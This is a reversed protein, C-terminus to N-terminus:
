CYGHSCSSGGRVMLDVLAEVGALEIHHSVLSLLPHRGCIHEDNTRTETHTYTHVHLLSSLPIPVSRETRDEEEM